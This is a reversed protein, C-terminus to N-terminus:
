VAANGESTGDLKPPSLTAPTAAGSIMEAGDPAADVRAKKEVPNLPGDASGKGLDSASGPESAKAKRKGFVGLSKVAGSADPVVPAGFGIQTGSNGLGAQELVAQLSGGGLAMAQNSGSGQGEPADGVTEESDIRQELEEQFM